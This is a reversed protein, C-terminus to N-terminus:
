YGAALGGRRPDVAGQLRDGEVAISHAAGMQRRPTIHYGMEGLRELTDPSFGEEVQLEDPLWQHHFRPAAVAASVDMRHVLVNLIVQLTTTIIRSGGPSGTVLVARGDRLVITPSM